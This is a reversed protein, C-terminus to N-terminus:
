DEPESVLEYLGDDYLNRTHGHETLRQLRQSIYTSTIEKRRGEDIVRDRAYVPTVRGEKLYGVLIADIERLDNKSLAM